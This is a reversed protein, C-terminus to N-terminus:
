WPAPQGAPVPLAFIRRRRGAASREWAFGLGVLIVTSLAFFLGWGLALALLSAPEFLTPM